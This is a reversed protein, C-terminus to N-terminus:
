HGYNASFAWFLLFIGACPPILCAFAGPPHSPNQRGAPSAAEKGLAGGFCWVEAQAEAEGATDMVMIAFEFERDGPDIGFLLRSM